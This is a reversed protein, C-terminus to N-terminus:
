SLILKNVSRVQLKPHAYFENLFDMITDAHLTTAVVVVHKENQARHSSYTGGQKQREMWTFALQEFQLHGFYTMLDCECVLIYVCM